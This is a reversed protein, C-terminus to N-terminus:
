IRAANTQYELEKRSLEKHRVMYREMHSEAFMRVSNWSRVYVDHTGDEWSKVVVGILNGEVVVIDGFCFKMPSITLRRKQRIFSVIGRNSEQFPIYPPTTVDKKTACEM